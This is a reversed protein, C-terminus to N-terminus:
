KISWRFSTEITGERTNEQKEADTAFATDCCVFKLKERKIDRFLVLGFLYFNGRQVKEEIREIAISRLSRHSRITSVRISLQGVIGRRRVVIRSAM